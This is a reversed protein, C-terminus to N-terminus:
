KKEELKTQARPAHCIETCGKPDKGVSGVEGRHCKFCAQHYAAMLGPRGIDGPRAYAPHCDKCPKLKSVDLSKKFVSPDIRHCESCTQVQESGHQHHCDACGGATSVHGSHNFQVPEYVKSLSGLILVKPVGGGATSEAGASVGIWLALAVVITTAKKV